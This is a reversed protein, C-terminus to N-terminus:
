DWRKKQAYKVALANLSAALQEQAYLLYEIVLQSARFLKILLPDTMMRLDEERLNCFTLNELHMQLIDVDVDRIVRELDLKAFSRLDLKGQRQQFHFTSCSNPVVDFEKRQRQSM